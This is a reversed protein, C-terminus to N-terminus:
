SDPFGLGPGFYIVDGSSITGNTPDYIAAGDPNEDEEPSDHDTDPGHSLYVYEIVEREEGFLDEIYEDLEADDGELALIYARTGFHFNPAEDPDSIRRFPDAPRSTIYAIPTTIMTSTMTEFVETDAANLPIQDGAEDSPIPYRNHDVFYAETATVLSRMDAKARPVKSRTQAELFNPVAIAALIAIIAVVILLEILTFAKKTVM